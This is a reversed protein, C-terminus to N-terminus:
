HWSERVLQEPLECEFMILPGSPHDQLNQGVGPLDVKVNIGADRLAKAPGIGSLMLIQPSHLAGASIIIEKKVSVTVPDGGTKPVFRVGSARNGDFFVKNVRMGVVMDYNPRNLGDWHGTRSYSRNYPVEPEMSIPYWGLGTTGANIDRPVEIGPVKKLANYMTKRNDGFQPSYTALVRSNEYKGWAAPIDYTINFEAAYEPDPEQLNVAKRFSPLLGDWNWTSGLGGLEAWLGYDRRSSRHLGQGNIASSGGVCHGPFLGVVRDELAAIPQSSMNYM